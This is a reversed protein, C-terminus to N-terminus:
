NEVFISYNFSFYGPFIKKIWNFQPNDL